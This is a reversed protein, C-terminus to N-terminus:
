EESREKCFPCQGDKKYTKSLIECFGFKRGFCPRTDRCKRNRSIRKSIEETRRYLEEATLLRDM